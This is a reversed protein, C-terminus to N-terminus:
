RLNTHTKLHKKLHDSRMFRRECAVCAFPKEGTHTRLHRNLDDQRKFSKTCLKCRWPRHPDHTEELSEKGIEPWGMFAGDASISVTSHDKKIETSTCCNPPQSEPKFEDVPSALKPLQYDSGSNSTNEKPAKSFLGTVRTDPSVVHYENSNEPRELKIKIPRHDLLADDTVHEAIPKSESGTSNKSEVNSRNQQLTAMFHMGNGYQIEKEINDTDEFNNKSDASEIAYSEKKTRNGDVQTRPKKASSFSNQMQKAHTALHKTLHDSRAFKKTCQICEFPKEGTHTRLHRNLEDSRTFGKGCNLESCVFPKIGTHWTLHSRLHSSKGYSKTCNEYPCAFRRKPDVPNPLPMLKITPTLRIKPSNTNSNNYTDYSNSMDHPTDYIEEPPEHKIESQLAPPVAVSGKIQTNSENPIKYDSGCMSTPLVAPTAASTMEEQTPTDSLTSM